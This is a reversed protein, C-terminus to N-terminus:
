YAPARTGRDPRVARARRATQGVGPGTGRHGLVVPSVAVVPRREQATGIAAVREAAHIRGDARAVVAVHPAVRTPTGRGTQRGGRLFATPGAAAAPREVGTGSVATAGAITARRRVEVRGGRLGPLPRAIPPMERGAPVRTGHGRDAPGKTRKGRPGSDDRPGMGRGVPGPTGVGAPRAYGGRAGGARGEPTRVSGCSHGARRAQGGDRPVREEGDVREVGKGGPV